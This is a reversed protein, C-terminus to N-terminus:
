LLASTATCVSGRNPLGATESLGTAKRVRRAVPKGKECRSSTGAANVVILTAAKTPYKSIGGPWKGYAPHGNKVTRHHRAEAPIRGPAFTSRDAGLQPESRAHGPQTGLGFPLAASATALLYVIYRRMREGQEAARGGRLPGHSQAGAECRPQRERLTPRASPRM